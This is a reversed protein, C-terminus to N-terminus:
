WGSEKGDLWAHAVEAAGLLPVPTYLQAYEDLKRNDLGCSKSYTRSRARGMERKM